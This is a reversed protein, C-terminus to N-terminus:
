KYQLKKKMFSKKYKDYMCVDALRGSAINFLYLYLAEMTYSCLYSFRTTNYPFGM